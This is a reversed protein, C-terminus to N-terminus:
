KRTSFNFFDRLERERKGFSDSGAQYLLSLKIIDTELLDTAMAPDVFDDSIRITSVDDFIITRLQDMSQSSVKLTKEILEISALYNRALKELLRRKPVPYGGVGVNLVRLNQRSVGIAEVADTIAFLTPNNACYGGDFLEVHEGRNTVVTKREFFPYASCSAQVANSLNVGFGPSFTAVRGHAQNSHGKFIMPKEGQWKTAVVGVRTQLDSFKKEAFISDALLKLAKSRNKATRHGMVEPVHKKYLEHIQKTTYGLSILIGIISGTSTGFILDFNKCLPSGLMSELENLVGLTYFGKSGGGDLTLVRYPKDMSLNNDDNM